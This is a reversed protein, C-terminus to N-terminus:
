GVLEDPTFLKKLFGKVLPRIKCHYDDDPSFGTAVLIKVSADIKRLETLCGKGSMEPMLLDLIVFGIEPEKDMYIEIAERGNNVQIVKYGAGTLVKSEFEAVLPADEVVLFIRFTTGAGLENECTIHGDHEEIIGKVVSLGLGTGKTSGRQKTSFFPEYIRDLIEKPMGPGSDSFAITFYNGPKARPHVGRDEKDLFITSTDIKLRGGDPTAEAANIVINLIHTQSSKQRLLFM